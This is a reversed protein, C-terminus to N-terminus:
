GMLMTMGLGYIPMSDSVVRSVGGTMGVPAFRLPPVKRAVQGVKASGCSLSGIRAIKSWFM